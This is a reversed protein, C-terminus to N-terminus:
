FLGNVSKFCKTTHPFRKADAPNKVWSVASKLGACNALGLLGSMTLRGYPTETGILGSLRSDGKINNTYELMNKRFVRLQLEPSALFNDQLTDNVFQGRYAGKLRAVDQMLGLEELRRPSAAFCGLQGNPGIARLRNSAMRREFTRKPDAAGVNAVPINQQLITIYKVANAALQAVTLPHQKFGRATIRAIFANLTSPGIRGDVSAGVTAQLTKFVALIARFNPVIMLGTGVRSLSVKKGTKVEAQYWAPKGDISTVFNAPRDPAKVLKPLIARVADAKRKVAAPTTPRSVSTSIPSVPSIVPTPDKSSGEGPLGLGTSDADVDKVAILLGM